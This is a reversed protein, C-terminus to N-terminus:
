SPRANRRAGAISGPEPSPQPMERIVVSRLLEAGAFAILRSLEAAIEKSLVSRAAPASIVIQTNEPATSCGNITQDVVHYFLDQM